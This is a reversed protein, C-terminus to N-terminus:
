KMKRSAPTPHHRGYYRNVSRRRRKVGAMLRHRRAHHTRKRRRDRVKHCDLTDNLTGKTVGKSPNGRKM